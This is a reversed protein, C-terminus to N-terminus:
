DGFDCLDNPLLYGETIEDNLQEFYHIIDDIYEDDFPIVYCNKNEKNPQIVEGSFYTPLEFCASFELGNINENYRFEVLLYDDDSSIRTESFLGGSKIQANILQEKLKSM